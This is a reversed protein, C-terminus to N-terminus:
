RTKGEKAQQRRKRMYGRMYERMYAKRDFGTVPEPDAVVRSEDVGSCAMVRHPLGCIKCKVYEM